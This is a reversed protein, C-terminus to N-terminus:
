KLLSFIKLIKKIKELHLKLMSTKYILPDHKFYKIGGDNSSHQFPCLTVGTQGDM